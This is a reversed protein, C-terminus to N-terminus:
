RASRCPLSPVRLVCILLDGRFPPSPPVHHGHYGIRRFSSKVYHKQCSKWLSTVKGDACTAAVFTIYSHIYTAYIFVTVAAPAAALPFAPCPAGKDFADSVRHHIHLVRGGTHFFFCAWIRMITALTSSEGTISDVVIDFGFLTLLLHQRLLEVAKSVVREELGRGAFLFFGELHFDGGGRKQGQIYM